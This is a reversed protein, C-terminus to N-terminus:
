VKEGVKNIICYVDDKSNINGNLKLARARCGGTCKKCLKNERDCHLGSFKNNMERWTSFTDFNSIDGLKYEDYILSPCIYINGNSKIYVFRNGIGCNISIAEHNIIDYYEKYINKIINASEIINENLSQARGEPVIVDLVSKVNLNQLFEILEPIHNKNHNGIMTNVSINLDYKKLDQIARITKKFSGNQGRFKDHEEENCSDISTVIDKVGYKLIMDRFKNNYLTLNTFIRVLMGSNYAYELLEEINKYLLPEGGTIDFQYVGSKSANDIITKLREINLSNVKKCEFNGYCHQCKLNCKETLEVFIRANNYKTLEKVNNINKQKKITLINMEFLSEIFEEPFIEILDNKTYNNNKIDKLIEFTDENINFEIKNLRDYIFIKNEFPNKVAVIADNIYVKM